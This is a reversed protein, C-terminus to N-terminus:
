IARVNSGDGQDAGASSDCGNGANASTMTSVENMTSTGPQVVYSQHASTVVNQVQSVPLVVQPAPAATSAGGPEALIVVPSSILQATCFQPSAGFPLPVLMYMVQPSQTATTNLCACRHREPQVSVGTGESTRLGGDGRSVATPIRQVDEVVLADSGEMVETVANDHSSSRDADEMTSTSASAKELASATTVRKTKGIKKKIATAKKKKNDSKDVKKVARRYRERQLANQHDRHEACLWHREGNNKLTRENKCHGPYQCQQPSLNRERRSGRTANVKPM